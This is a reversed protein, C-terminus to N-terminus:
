SAAWGAQRSGRIEDLGACRRTMDVLLGETPKRLQMERGSSRSLPLTLILFSSMDPQSKHEVVVVSVKAPFRQEKGPANEPLSVSWARKLALLLADCLVGRRQAASFGAHFDDPQGWREPEAAGGASAQSVARCLRSRVTNFLSSVM